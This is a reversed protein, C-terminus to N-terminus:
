ILFCDNRLCKTGKASDTHTIPQGFSSGLRALPNQRSQHKNAPDTGDGQSRSQRGTMFGSDVAECCFPGDNALVVSDGSRTIPRPREPEASAKSRATDR